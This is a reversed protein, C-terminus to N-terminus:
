GTKYNSKEKMWRQWDEWLRPLNYRLFRQISEAPNQEVLGHLLGDVALLQPYAEIWPHVLSDIIANLEAKTYPLKESKRPLKLM